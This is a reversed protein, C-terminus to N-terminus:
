VTNPEAIAGRAGQAGTISEVCDALSHFTSAVIEEDM